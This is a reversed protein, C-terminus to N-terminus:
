RPVADYRPYSVWNRAQPRAGTDPGNECLRPCDLSIAQGGLCSPRLRGIRWGAGARETGRAWTLLALRQPQHGHVRM